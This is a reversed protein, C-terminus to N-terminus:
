IDLLKKIEISLERIKDSSIKKRLMVFERIYGKMTYDLDKSIMAGDQNHHVFGGINLYPTISTSIDFKKNYIKEGNLYLEINDGDFTVAFIYWINLQSINYIVPTDCNNSIRDEKCHECYFFVRVGQGKYKNEISEDPQPEGWFIGFSKDHNTIGDNCKHTRRQGYSFFFMPKDDTPRDTPKIAFIFSRSEKGSPLNEKTHVSIMNKGNFKYGQNKVFPNNNFTEGQVFIHPFINTDCSPYTATDCFSDELPLYLDPKFKKIIIKRKNEDLCELHDYSKNSFKEKTPKFIENNLDNFLYLLGIILFFIGFSTILFKLNETFENINIYSTKITLWPFVILIIGLVLFIFTSKNYPASTSNELIYGKNLKNYRM